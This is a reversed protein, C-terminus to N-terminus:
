FGLRFDEIKQRILEAPDINAARLSIMQRMDDDNLLVIMKRHIIWQERRTLEASRDGGTRSVIMGFQGVGHASLYNAVQLIEKKKVNGIYNKADVVIYHAQYYSRMYDWYGSTAYNPLVFDRRNIRSKNASESIPQSLPPCLLFSLVDGCLSQYASWDARGPPTQALRDLLAQTASRLSSPQSNVSEAMFSAFADDGTAARIVAGDIIRRIGSEYLYAIHQPSFTGPVALALEPPPKDPNAGAYLHAYRTLQQVVDHLRKQTNPTVRKAEIIVEKGTDPWFAIFDPRAYGLRPERIIQAGLITPLVHELLSLFDVELMRIQEGAITV